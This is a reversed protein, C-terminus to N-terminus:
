NKKIHRKIMKVKRLIFEKSHNNLKKNMDPNSNISQGLNDNFKEKLIKNEEENDNNNHVEIKINNDNNNKLNNKIRQYSNHKKM